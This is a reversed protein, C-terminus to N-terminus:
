QAPLEVVEALPSQLRQVRRQRSRVAALEVSVEVRQRGRDHRQRLTQDM